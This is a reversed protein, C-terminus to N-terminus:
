APLFASTTSALRFRLIVVMVVCKRFHRQATVVAANLRINEAQEEPLEDGCAPAPFWFLPSVDELTANRSSFPRSSFSDSRAPTDPLTFHSTMPLSLM